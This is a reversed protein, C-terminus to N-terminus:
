KKADKKAEAPKAGAAAPAAGAAAPAAGEAGPAAAAGEAGAAPAVVVEEIFNRAESISVITIDKTLAFKMGSPLTLQSMKNASNLTLGTLDVDIHDPIETAICDVDIDHRALHLVGKDQTLGPAKDENILKLPVHVRIKTKPTVRMFDAHVITDKVPDIQVDRVLVLHKQGEIELNCLSTYMHGKIYETTIEKIPLAISVPPKGDGYIVAPIKSERRFARAVGKGAQQRVEGSLAYNRTAMKNEEIKL